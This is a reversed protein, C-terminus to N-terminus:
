SLWSLPNSKEILDNATKIGKELFAQLDNLIKPESM